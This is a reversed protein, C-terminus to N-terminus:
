VSPGQNELLWFMGIHAIQQMFPEFEVPKTVYGNVGLKYSDAVDREENSSTMVVVPISRTAPDAKLAKLVDLGDLRPMKLDLLVLKLPNAPRRSEFRGTCRIFELAEVGDEVWHLKNVFNCKKLARMTMEADRENDEVLLIEIVNLDTM